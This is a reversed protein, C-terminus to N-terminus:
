KETEEAIGNQPPEGVASDVVATEEPVSSTSPQEDDSLVIEEPEPTSARCPAHQPADPLRMGMVVVPRSPIPPAEHVTAPERHKPKRPKVAEMGNCKSTYYFAHVVAFM